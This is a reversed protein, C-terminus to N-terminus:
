DNYPKYPSNKVDLTKPLWVKYRVTKEWTNGASAFDCFKVNRPTRHGELDTGMVAPVAFTLWAFKKGEVPTVEVFGDKSQIVASEDVFGDGFRSDRALVIPGRMIAQHNSQEYLRARLDFKLTVVDGKSWKRSITLYGRKVDKIDIGNVAVSNIASWEPIRLKLDFEADKEPSVVIEVKDTAPYDGRQEIHIRNKGLSLTADSKGYLNITVGSADAKYTYHPIMAFARPGNANCCNINMGCQREGETRWGELPSYKAIQTGDNKLSALLANYITREMNDAFKVDGTLELMRHCLQMWTFTVCTEMTHYTPLHQQSAGGYWCEFASGSGALNIEERIISEISKEASILLRKEGTIKHLEILGEYCSMMEYAKHGNERSFWKEPLPTRNAVAVGQEGKTILEAGMESDMQEAIYKAFDLYKENKTRNYLYVVPELISCSPMGKYLGVQAIDISKAKLQAILHDILAQAAKLAKRDHSLDYWALLALATYKRCWVDWRGPQHEEAYNGIYGDKSQTAILDAVGQEIKRYLAPNKTYRYTDIAGLTWKGWFESQWRRHENRHRFPEVLYDVDQGMVRHEICDDIRKGLYGYINVKEVSQGSTFCPILFAVLLIISARKM